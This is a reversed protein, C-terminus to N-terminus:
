LHPLKNYTIRHLILKSNGQPVVKVTAGDLNKNLDFYISFVTKNGSIVEDNKVKLVKHLENLNQIDSIFYCLDDDENNISILQVEFDIRYNGSSLYLPDCIDVYINKDIPYNGNLDSYIGNIYGIRKLNLDRSFYFSKSVVYGNLNLYDNVVSSNSYVSVDRSINTYFFGERCLVNYENKNDTVIVVPEKSDRRNNLFFTDDKINFKDKLLFSFHEVYVPIKSTNSNSNLNNIIKEVSNLYCSVSDGHHKIHNFFYNNVLLISFFFIILCIFFQNYFIRHLVISHLLKYFSVFFGLWVLSYFSLILYLNLYNSNQNLVLVWTYSKLLQIIVDFFVFYVFFIFSLTLIKTILDLLLNKKLVIEMLSM